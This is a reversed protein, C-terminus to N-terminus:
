SDTHLISRIANEVDEEETPWDLELDSLAIAWIHRGGEEQVRVWSTGTVDSVTGDTVIGWSGVGGNGLVGGIIRVREGTKPNKYM